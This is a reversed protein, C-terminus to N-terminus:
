TNVVDCSYQETIYNYKRSSRGEGFSLEKSGRSPVAQGPSFILKVQTVSSEVLRNILKIYPSATTVLQDLIIDTQLILQFAVLHM